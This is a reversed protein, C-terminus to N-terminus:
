RYSCVFHHPADNISWFLITLPMMSPGSCSPSPMCQHALVPHVRHVQKIVHVDNAMFGAPYEEFLEPEFTVGLSLEQLAPCAKAISALDMSDFTVTSSLEIKLVARLHTGTCEQQVIWPFRLPLGLQAATM